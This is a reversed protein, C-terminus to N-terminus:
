GRHEIIVPDAFREALLLSDSQPIVGDARGM